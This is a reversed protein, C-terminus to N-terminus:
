DIRNASQAATIQRVLKRARFITLVRSATNRYALAILMRVGFLNGKKLHNKLVSLVGFFGQNRKSNYDLYANQFNAVRDKFGIVGGYKENLRSCNLALEDSDKHWQNESIRYAVLVDKLIATDTVLMARLAIDLGSSTSFSLDFLGIEQFLDSRILSVSEILGGFGLMEYWNRVMKKSDSFKVVRMNKELTEEFVVYSCYLLSVSSNKELFHVQKELKGAFWLDDADLLAIYKGNSRSIGLNRAVAQGQNVQKVIEWVGGNLAFFETVLSNSNDTSGDDVIICEWNTYTQNVISQLTPIIWDSKNYLPIVISVLPNSL